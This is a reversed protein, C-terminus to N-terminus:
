PNVADPCTASLRKRYVRATQGLVSTTWEFPHARYYTPAIYLPYDRIRCYDRALLDEPDEFNFVIVMVEPRDSPWRRGWVTRYRLTNERFLGDGGSTAVTGSFGALLTGLERSTDRISYHPALYGPALQALALLAYGSGSLIISVPLSPVFSPRRVALAASLLASAVLMTLWAGSRHSAWSTPWFDADALGSRQAVFWAFTAAVPFLMFFTLRRHGRCCWELVLTVVLLSVTLTAVKTRLRFPEVGIVGVAAALLPAVFAATPLSLFGLGVLRLRGRAEAVVSEARALGARQLMGIGLAITICMPLLIHVKYRNPFYSSVLMVGLYLVCWLASTMFYRRVRMDISEASTAGRGLLAFWLALGVLNLEPALPDEFPFSLADFTTSAGLMTYLFGFTSGILVTLQRCCALLVVALVFGPGVMGVMFMLFASWRRRSRAAAVFPWPLLFLSLIAVTAAATLKMVIILSALLGAGFGRLASLNGSTIALYLAFQLAIIAMEPVALRSLTVLDAELALPVLGLLLAEPTTTRRFAVWFAVLLLSGAVASLLRSSLVSVDTLTFALYSAFQFLPAVLMHLPESGLVCGFLAMERAQSTWRGEDTIYGIWEYYHPDADLFLFRLGIGLIVVGGTAFRAFISPWGRM